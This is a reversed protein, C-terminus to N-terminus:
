SFIASNKGFCVSLAQIWCHQMLLEYDLRCPASQKNFLFLLPFNHNSWIWYFAFLGSSLPQTPPKKACSLFDKWLVQSLEPRSRGDGGRAAPTTPHPTFGPLSQSLTQAPHSPPASHKNTCRLQWCLFLSFSFVSPSSSSHWLIYYTFQWDHGHHKTSPICPKWRQKKYTNRGEKAWAFGTGGPCFVNAKWGGRNVAGPEQSFGFCHKKIQNNEKSKIRPIKSQQRGSQGLIQQGKVGTGVGPGATCCPDRGQQLVAVPMPLVPVPKGSHNLDWGEKTRLPSGLVVVRFIAHGPPDTPPVLAPSCPSVTRSSELWLFVRCCIPCGLWSCCRRHYATSSSDPFCWPLLTSSSNCASHPGFWSCPCALWAELCSRPMWSHSLRPCSSGGCDEAHDQTKVHKRCRDAELMFVPNSRPLSVAAELGQHPQLNNWQQAVELMSSWSVVGFTSSPKGNIAPSHIRWKISESGAPRGSGGSSM